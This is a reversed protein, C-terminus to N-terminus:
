SGILGWLMVAASLHDVLVDDAAISACLWARETHYRIDEMIMKRM